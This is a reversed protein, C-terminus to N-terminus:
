RHYLQMPWCPTPSRRPWNASRAARNGGSRFDGPRPPLRRRAHPSHIPNEGRDVPEGAPWNWRKKGNRLSATSCDCCGPWTTQVERYHTQNQLAKKTIFLRSRGSKRKQLLINCTHYCAERQWTQNAPSKPFPHDSRGRERRLLACWPQLLSGRTLNSKWPKKQFHIIAEDV